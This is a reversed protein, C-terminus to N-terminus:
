IQGLLIMVKFILNDKWNQRFLRGGFTIRFRTSWKHKTQIFETLLKEKNTDEIVYLRQFELVQKRILGRNKRYRKVRSKFQQLPTVSVGLVNNSHQRYLLYSNEDYIVKGFCSAVLYFWWDHMYSYQPLKEEVMDYLHKNFVISCGICVNEVLANGFAPTIKHQMINTDIQELKENVIEPKGAYLLPLAQQEEELRELAKRIKSPKWYDDQDSFAYYDATKDAKKVLEFFSQCPGSNEGVFYSINQYKAVYEDLIPVTADKSGDDRILVEINPFDQKLISDLQERLYHEGNYTSLLIQVKIKNLRSKDKNEVM